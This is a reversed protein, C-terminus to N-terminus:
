LSRKRKASWDRYFQNIKMMRSRDCFLFVSDKERIKFVLGCKILRYYSYIFFNFLLFYVLLELLLSLFGDAPISDWGISYGISDLLDAMAFRVIDDTWSLLFLAALIILGIYLGLKSPQKIEAGNVSEHWVDDYEVKKFPGVELSAVRENTLCSFSYSRFPFIGRVGLYDVREIAESPSFFQGFMTRISEEDDKIAKDFLSQEFKIRM